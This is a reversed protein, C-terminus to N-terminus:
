YTKNKYLIFDKKIYPKLIKPILLYNKTTQYQELICNIVNLDNFLTANVKYINPSSNYNLIISCSGIKCYINSKLLYGLIDYRKSEKLKLKSSVINIIKFSLNLSKYFNKIIKIIEAVLIKNNTKDTAVLMNISNIYKTKSNKNQYESSLLIFKEPLKYESLNYNKGILIYNHSKLYNIGYNILALSIETGSDFLHYINTGSIPKTINLKKYITKYTHLKNTRIHTCQYIIECDNKNNSIPVTCDLHNGLKSILKDRKTFYSLNLLKLKYEIHNYLMINHNLPMKEIIQKIETESKKKSILKLFGHLIHNPDLDMSNYLKELKDSKYEINLNIQKLIIKALKNYKNFLDQQNHGKNDYELIKSIFDPNGYRNIENIKYYLSNKRIEKINM